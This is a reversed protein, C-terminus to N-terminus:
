AYIRGIFGDARWFLSSECWIVQNPGSSGIQTPYPGYPVHQPDMHGSARNQLSSLLSNEVQDPPSPIYSDAGQPSTSGFNMVDGNGMPFMIVVTPHLYHPLIFVFRLNSKPLNGM